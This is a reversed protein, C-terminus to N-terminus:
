NADRVADHNSVAPELIAFEFILAAPVRRRGRHGDGFCGLEQGVFSHALRTVAALTSTSTAAGGPAAVAPACCYSGSEALTCAASDRAILSLPTGCSM